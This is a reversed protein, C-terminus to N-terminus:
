GGAGLGELWALWRAFHPCADAVPRLGAKALIDPGDGVKGYSRTGSQRVATALRVSPHTDPGNDIQEPGGCDAAITGPRAGLTPISLHAAAADPVAFIWTEFEHLILFPRFGPQGIDAAFASELAAIRLMADPLAKAAAMGPFDDPLGYYDLLTTVRADSDTLLRRVDRAMRAYTTVGGRYHRGAPVERTRLLSAREAFVGFAHLHPRLVRNVFAEETQGEVLLLVRAM